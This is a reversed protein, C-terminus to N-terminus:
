KVKTGFPFSLTFVLQSVELEGTTGSPLNTTSGNLTLEDYTLSRYELNFSLNNNPMFGFGIKFGSGEYESSDDVDLASSLIYGIWARIGGAKLGALLSLDTGQLDVEDNIDESEVSGTIGRYEGAFFMSNVAVGLAAGYALVNGDYTITSGSLEQETSYMSLGITPEAYFGMAHVLGPM